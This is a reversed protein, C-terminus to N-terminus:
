KESKCMPRQNLRTEPKWQRRSMVYKWIKTNMYMWEAWLKPDYIFILAYFISDHLLLIFRDYIPILNGRPVSTKMQKQRWGAVAMIKRCKNGAENSVIRSEIATIRANMRTKPYCLHAAEPQLSNAIGFQTRHPFSAIRCFFIFPTLAVAYFIVSWCMYARMCVCSWFKNLM